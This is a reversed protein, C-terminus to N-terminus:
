IGVVVERNDDYVRVVLLSPSFEISRPPKGRQVRRMRDDEELDYVLKWGLRRQLGVARPDPKQMADGDAFRWGLSTLRAEFRKISRAVLPLNRSALLAAHALAEAESSTLTSEATM